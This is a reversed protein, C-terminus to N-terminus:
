DRKWVKVEDVWASKNVALRIMRKTPHAFGPSKLEGIVQGDVSARMVDGEIVVLLTHWQDPKLDLPFSVTKSRFIELLEPSNEGKLRRERLKLDMAGTKLDTLILRKLRVRAVCLHGAHVTKLESDAFDIGLDDGAGLKFKLQVAGDQFAVKHTVSVGHDAEAHKTVHIAGEKLDVQQHGKARSKSNSGWGKGIEEKGPTSEDREFDDEFILKGLDNKAPKDEALIVGSFVGSLVLVTGMWCAQKM